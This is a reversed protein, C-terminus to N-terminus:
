HSTLIHIKVKYLCNDLTQVDLAIIRKAVREMSRLAKHAKTLKNYGAKNLVLTYYAYLQWVLSSFIFMEAM